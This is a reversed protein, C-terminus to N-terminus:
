IFREVIVYRHQGYAGPRPDVVVDGRGASAPVTVTDHSERVGGGLVRATPETGPLPGSARCLGIHATITALAAWGQRELSRSYTGPM